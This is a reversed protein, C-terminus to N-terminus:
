RHAGVDGTRAAGPEEHGRESGPRSQEAMVAHARGGTPRPTCRQAAQRGRDRVRGERVRHLARHLLPAVRVLELQRVEERRAAEGAVTDGKHRASRRRLLRGQHEVHARRALKCLAVQRACDVHREEGVFLAGDDPREVLLLAWFLRHRLAHPQDLRRPPTHHVRQRWLRALPPPQEDVALAAPHAGAAGGPEEGLQRELYHGQPSPILAEAPPHPLLRELREVPLQDHQPPPGARPLRVDEEGHGLRPARLHVEPPLSLSLSDAVGTWSVDALQGSPPRGPPLPAAGRSRRRRAPGAPAARSRSTRSGARAATPLGRAEPAGRGCRPRM